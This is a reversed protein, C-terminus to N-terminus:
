KSNNDTINVVFLLYLIEINMLWPLAQKSVHAAVKAAQPRKRKQAPYSSKTGTM